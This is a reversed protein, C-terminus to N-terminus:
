IHIEKLGTISFNDNGIDSPIQQLLLRRGQPGRPLIRLFLHKSATPEVMYRTGNVHRHKLRQRPVFKQHFGILYQFSMEPFKEILQCVGPIIRSVATLKTKTRGSGVQGMGIVSM